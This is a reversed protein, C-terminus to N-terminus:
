TRRTRASRVQALSPFMRYAVTDLRSAILSDTANPDARSIGAM